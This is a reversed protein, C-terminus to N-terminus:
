PGHRYGMSKPGGLRGVAYRKSEIESRPADPHRDPLWALEPARGSHTIAAAEACLGPLLDARQDVLPIRRHQHDSNGAEGVAPRM